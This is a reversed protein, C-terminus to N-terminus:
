VGNALMILKTTDNFMVGVSDDCLQYGFGYKDSYDVWKSVWVLPQAAPDTMEDSLLRDKDIDTTKSRFLQSLQDRLTLLSNRADFTNPQPGTAAHGGSAAISDHHGSSAKLPSDVHMALDNNVVNNMESLPKRSAQTTMQDFRPAMTLCSAPLSTPLYGSYFFEHKILQDVKPRTRPESQLMKVIMNTAPLSITQPVRYECKKIRSYTEKLSNTEFPPKGMLLTYMICGISWVDVEFSHGKKNLIEPAIYNPTGCLTKKREGDYEIKTALGFDGIKVQLDDNLFLNGLKLDRHIIRNEHLYHVGDLIQKMYFRTEPETLAKRRKHLEMM